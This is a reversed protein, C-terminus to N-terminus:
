AVLSNKVAPKLERIWQIAEEETRFLKVPVPPKKFNMILNAMMRAIFSNAILAACSVYVHDLFYKRAEDTIEHDDMFALLPKPEGNCIEKMANVSEMAKLLDIKGDFSPNPNSYVIGDSKLIFTSTSLEITKLSKM